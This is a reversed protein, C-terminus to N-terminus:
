EEKVLSALRGQHLKKGVETDSGLLNAMEQLSIPDDSDQIENIITAITTKTMLNSDYLKSAIRTIAEVSHTVDLPEIVTKRAFAPTFLLSNLKDISLWESGMGEPWELVFVRRYNKM